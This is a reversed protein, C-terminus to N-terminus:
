ICYRLCDDDWLQVEIYVNNTMESIFSEIDYDSHQEMLQHLTQKTYVTLQEEKSSRMSDGLTFSVAHDPVDRLLIRNITGNDFWGNLYDSGHLVFSLPHLEKPKGSLEVFKRYLYADAEIRRPYYNIFDAFRWFATKGSNEKAIQSAFSFAEEKNLRMINKLPM